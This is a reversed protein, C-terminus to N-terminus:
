ALSPKGNQRAIAHIVAELAAITRLIMEPDGRFPQDRAADARRRPVRLYANLEVQLAAVGLTDVAYRTVTEQHDGGSGPFARDVDLFFLGRSSPSFGHDEFTKLIYPLQVPCSRGRMSGLAIGFTRDPACGHLDLVFFIRARNVVERLALKYPAGRDFNPDTTSKRWAYIAHAGTREALLRTMGATFEDEEKLSGRRIHAAGHPASILIPISGPLYCYDPKGSPPPNKYEIEAELEM